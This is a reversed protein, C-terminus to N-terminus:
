NGQQNITARIRAAVATGLENLRYVPQSWWEWGNSEETEDDTPLDYLKLCYVPVRHWKEREIIKSRDEATIEDAFLIVSVQRGLPTQYFSTGKEPYLGPGELMLGRAALPELEARDAVPWNTRGGGINASMVLHRERETLGAAIDVPDAM